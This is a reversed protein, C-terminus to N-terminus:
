REEAGLMKAISKIVTNMMQVREAQGVTYMIQIDDNTLHM